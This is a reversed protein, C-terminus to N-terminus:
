KLLTALCEAPVPIEAGLVSDAWVVVWRRSSMRSVLIISVMKRQKTTLSKLKHKKLHFESKAFRINLTTNHQLISIM